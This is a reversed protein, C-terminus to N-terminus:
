CLTEFNAPTSLNNATPKPHFTLGMKKLKQFTIEKCLNHEEKVSIQEPEFTSRKYLKMDKTKQKKNKNKLVFM